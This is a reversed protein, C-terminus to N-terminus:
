SIIHCSISCDLYKCRPQRLAGRHAITQTVACVSFPDNIFLRRGTTSLMQLTSTKAAPQPDLELLEVALEALEEVDAALGAPPRFGSVVGLYAEGDL